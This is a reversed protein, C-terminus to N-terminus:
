ATRRPQRALAEKAHAAVRDQARGLYIAALQESEIWTECPWPTGCKSCTGWTTLWNDPDDPELAGQHEDEVLQLAVAVDAEEETHLVGLRPHTVTLAAITSAHSPRIRSM